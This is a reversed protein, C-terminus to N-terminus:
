RKGDEEESHEALWRATRACGEEIFTEARYGLKRRIKETSVCNISQTTWRVTERTFFPKKSVPSIIPPFPLVKAAMEWLGAILMAFPVPIHVFHVKRNMAVAVNKVVEKLSYSRDDSVYFLEGVAETKEGALRLGRVANGVYCFEMKVEGSGILPYVGRKVMAFLKPVILFTGPGYIMPLRVVVREPKWAESMVVGEAELKSKGYNNEPRPPDEERRPNVGDGYGAAEVTSVYVFRRVRSKDAERLLNRTGEVNVAQFDDWRKSLDNRPIAALHYVTDIGDCIGALEAPKRLDGRQEEIEGEDYFYRPLDTHIMGRVTFGDDLLSRVLHQGIFGNAGSVMVSKM